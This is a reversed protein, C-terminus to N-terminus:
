NWWWAGAYNLLEVGLYTVGAGIIVPLIYKWMTEGVTAEYMMVPYVMTILGVVILVIAIGRLGRKSM